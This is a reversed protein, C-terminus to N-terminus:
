HLGITAPNYLLAWHAGYQSSVPSKPGDGGSKRLCRQQSGNCFCLDDHGGMQPCTAVSACRRGPARRTPKAPPTWRPRSSTCGCSRAPWGGGTPSTRSSSRRRRSCARRSRGAARMFCNTSAKCSTFAGYWSWGCAQLTVASTVGSMDPRRSLARAALINRPRV